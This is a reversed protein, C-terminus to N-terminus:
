PTSWIPITAAVPQLVTNPEVYGNLGNLTGHVLENNSFAGASAM